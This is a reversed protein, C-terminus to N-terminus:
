ISCTTHSYQCEIWQSNVSCTYVTGTYQQSIMAIPAISVHVGLLCPLGM